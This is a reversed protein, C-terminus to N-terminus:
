ILKYLTVSESTHGARLISRPFHKYNLSAPFGQTEFCFGGYPFYEVGDKGATGPTIQNATYLQMAEKDTYVELKIDSKEGVASAVLRYGEGNLVFNNDFGSLAKMQPHDAHIKEGFTGGKRCDYPTDAVRLIEGTPLCAESSPNFFDADIFVTHGFIDGSDHGNLNFYSHNTMNFPTDETATAVYHIGLANDQTLTYTVSVRLEGPFGEEGDPSTYCLRLSPEAGDVAEAEWVKKDFGVLGGHLNNEGNNRALSYTKGNLTFEGNRIRNANRGILAGFYTDGGLYDELTEYGLVVDHGRYVLNRVIGGLTLISASLGSQNSLTYLLVQQGNYNGFPVSSIAM